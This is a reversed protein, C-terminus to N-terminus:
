GRREMAKGILFAAGLGAGGAVALLGYDSKGDGTAALAERAAGPAPDAAGTKKAPVFGQETLTMADLDLGMGKAGQRVSDAIQRLKIKDGGAQHKAAGILVAQVLLSDALEQKQADTAGAFEPTALLAAAAQRKIAQAAERSDHPSTGHVAQWAEVWYVTYADAVDGITLGYKALGPGMQAIPDTGLTAALSKAGDPDSRGSQEVFRAYNAQRRADSPSYRLMSEASSTSNTGPAFTLKPPEISFRTSQPQSDGCRGAAQRRLLEAKELDNSYRRGCIQRGGNRGMQMAMMGPGNIIAANFVPQVPMHQAFTSASITVSCIM